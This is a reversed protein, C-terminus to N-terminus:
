SLVVCTSGLTNRGICSLTCHISATHWYEYTFYMNCYLPVILKKFLNKVLLLLDTIGEAGKEQPGGAFMHVACLFIM